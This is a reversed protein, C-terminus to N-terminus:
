VSGQRVARISLFLRFCRNRLFFWRDTELRGDANKRYRTLKLDDPLFSKGTYSVAQITKFVIRDAGLRRAFGTFDDRKKYNDRTVLYQLEILPSHRNKKKMEVVYKKVNIM